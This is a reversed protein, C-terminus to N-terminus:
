LRRRIMPMFVFKDLLAVIIFLVVLFAALGYSSKTYLFPFLNKVWANFASVGNSIQAAASNYVSQTATISEGVGSGELMGTFKLVGYVIGVIIVLGLLPALNKFISWTVSSSEKVSLRAMVHQTFDTSVEDLPLKRLASDIRIFVKINTACETCSQLHLELEDSKETDYYGDAYEQLQTSTFHNM